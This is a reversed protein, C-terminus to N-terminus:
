LKREMLWCDEMKGEFLEHEPLLKVIKFGAKQYARVARKNDTHPDLIMVEAARCNKMYTCLLNVYATGIGQNWFEPEGIFQDMAYVVRDTDPYDYEQFAEGRVRYVQGYGVSFNKYEIIMRFGDDFKRGYHVILSNLTYKIDRGGYYALVREDTLWKLLTPFDRKELERIIIDGNEIRM